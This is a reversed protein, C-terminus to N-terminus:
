QSNMDYNCKKPYQTGPVQLIQHACAMAAEICKDLTKNHALAAVLGGMFADGAGNLDVIEEPKIPPVKWEKLTETDTEYTYVPDPGQTIIV